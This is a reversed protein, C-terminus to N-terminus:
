RIILPFLQWGLSEAVLALKQHRISSSVTVLTLSTHALKVVMTKPYTAADPFQVMTFKPQHEKELGPEFYM